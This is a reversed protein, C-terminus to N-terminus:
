LFVVILITVLAQAADGTDVYFLATAVLLLLDTRHLRIVVVLPKVSRSVCDRPDGCTCSCRAFPGRMAM